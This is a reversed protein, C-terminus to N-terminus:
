RFMKDSPKKWYIKTADTNVYGGAEIIYLYLVFVFLVIFVVALFADIGSIILHVFIVVSLLILIQLLLMIRARLIKSTRYDHTQKDKLTEKQLKLKTGKNHTEQLDKELNHVINGYRMNTDVLIGLNITNELYKEFDRVIVNIAIDHPTDSSFSEFVRNNISYFIIFSVISIACITGVIIKSKAKNLSNKSDDNTTAIVLLTIVFVVFLTLYLYHLVSNKTLKRSNNKVNGNQYALRTTIDDIYKEQEDITKVNNDYKTEYDSVKQHLERSKRHEEIFKNENFPQTLDGEQLLFAENELEICNIYKNFRLKVYSEILMIFGNLIRKIADINSTSKDLKNIDPLIKIVFPEIDTYTNLDGGSTSSGYKYLVFAGNGVKYKILNPGHLVQLTVHLCDLLNKLPNISSADGFVISGFTVVSGSTNFVNSLPVHSDYNGTVGQCQEKDRPDDATAPSALISNTGWIAEFSSYTIISDMLTVPPTGGNTIDENLITLPNKSSIMNNRIFQLRTKIDSSMSVIM